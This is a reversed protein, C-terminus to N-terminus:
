RPGKQQEMSYQSVSAFPDKEGLVFFIRYLPNFEQILFFIRRSSSKHLMFSVFNLGNWKRIYVAINYYAQVMQFAPFLVL